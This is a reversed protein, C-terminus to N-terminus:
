LGNGAALTMAFYAVLCLLIFTVIGSFLESTKKPLFIISVIWSAIIFLVVLPSLWLVTSALWYPNNTQLCPTGGTSFCVIQNPSFGSIASLVWLWISGLIGLGSVFYLFKSFGRM